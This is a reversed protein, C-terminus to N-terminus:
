RCGRVRIFGGCGHTITVIEFETVTVRSKHGSVDPAM